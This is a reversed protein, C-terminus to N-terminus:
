VGDEVLNVTENYPGEYGYWNGTEKCNHYIRVANEFLMAGENIFEETCVYVRVAYPATKEQAVFVFGYDDFTNNFVGERYMGAQFKYGYKRVSREFQGDMCSDTTKYDVIYKQGDVESICDPRVKCAEGTENDTWFYSQEHEGKLYATALPNSDMAKKMECIKDYDEKSIVEKGTNALVFADWEAKGANTRRNVEPAVVFENDFDEAELIMKHCARGFALAPSDEKPNEREYKFHMPSKSILTYLESRSIGEHQRYEQNTM